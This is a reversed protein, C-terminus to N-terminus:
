SVSRIPRPLQRIEFDWGRHDRAVREVNKGIRLREPVCAVTLTVASGYVPPATTPPLGGM